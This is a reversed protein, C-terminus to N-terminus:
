GPGARATTTPCGWGAALSFYYLFLPFVFSLYLISPLARGMRRKAGRAIGAEEGEQPGLEIVELDSEDEVDGEALLAQGPM